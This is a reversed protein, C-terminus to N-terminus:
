RSLPRKDSPHDSWPESGMSGGRLTKSFDIVESALQVKKKSSDMITDTVLVSLGMDMVAAMENRDREDLVFGDVLGVYRRAIGTASPEEGLERMMKAAPGKLAQGGVIPSVAVKPGPVSRIAEKIGPLELIPGLSVFPNSPCFVVLRATALTTLVEQSPRADEIGDFRVGVIPVGARKAVFYDQFDLEGQETLVKTRVPENSMPLITTRVGLARCLRDTVETLSYGERLLERRLLHTGIDRDGLHFWTPYGYLKLMDLVQTTDSVVGWGQEPNALGALTYMVTDLDPSVHLGCFELDDATNVVATIEEPVSVGALGVVLKAGGVGGALAVIASNM